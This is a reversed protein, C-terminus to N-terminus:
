LDQNAAGSATPPVIASGPEPVEQAIREDITEEHAPNAIEHELEQVGAADQEVSEVPVGNDILDETSLDQDTVQSESVPQSLSPDELLSLDDQTTNDPM